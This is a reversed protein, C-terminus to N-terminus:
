IYTYLKITEFKCAVENDFVFHKDSVKQIQHDLSMTQKPKDLWSINFHNNSSLATIIGDTFRGTESVLIIKSNPLSHHVAAIFENSTIKGGNVFVFLVESIGLELKCSLLIDFMHNTEVGFTDSKDHGFLFNYRNNECLEEDKNYQQYNITTFGYGYVRKHKSMISNLISIHGANTAGNIAVIKGKKSAFISQYTRHIKDYIQDDSIQTGGLFYILCKAQNVDSKMCSVINRVSPNRKVKM